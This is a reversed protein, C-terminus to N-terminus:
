TPRVAAGTAARVVDAGLVDDLELEAVESIRLIMMYVGITFLTEVIQQPDYFAAVAAFTRDDVRVTKVVQRTFALLAAERSDFVPDDFRDQAIAEVKERAIGMDQAIQVHQAWEYSGRDLHLVGLVVIEREAPPISLQAFIAQTMLSFGPYVTRGHALLRFINLKGSPSTAYVRAQEPTLDQPEVLPIRTM